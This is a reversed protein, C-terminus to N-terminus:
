PPPVRHWGHRGIEDLRHCRRAIVPECATADAPSGPLVRVIDQRQRDVANRAARGISDIEFHAGVLQAGDLQPLGTEIGVFRITTEYRASIPSLQGTVRGVVSEPAPSDLIARIAVEIGASAALGANERFTENQALLQEVHAGSAGALGLVAVVALLMLGVVLAVGREAPRSV